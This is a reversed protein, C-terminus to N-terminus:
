APSTPLSIPSWPQPRIARARLVHGSRRKGRGGQGHPLPRRTADHADRGVMESTWPSIWPVRVDPFWRRNGRSTSLLTANM